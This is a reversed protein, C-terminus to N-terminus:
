PRQEGPIRLTAQGNGPIKPLLGPSGPESGAAPAQPPLGHGPHIAQDPLFASEGKRM